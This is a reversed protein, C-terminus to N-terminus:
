AWTAERTHKRMYELLTPGSVGLARATARLGDEKVRRRLEAMRYVSLRSPRIRRHPKIKYDALARGVADKSVGLAEATARLSLGKDVYLGALAARGPRPGRPRGRRRARTMREVNKM